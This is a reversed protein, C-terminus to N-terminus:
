LRSFFSETEHKEAERMSIIHINEDTETHTIVVVKVGLLGITNFRQEGYDVRSDETTAAPGDFVKEAEVFDLGHKKLNTQRKTEKWTFKMVLNFSKSVYALCAKCEM